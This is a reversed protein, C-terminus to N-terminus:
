SFSDGAFGPRYVRSRGTQPRRHALWLLVWLSVLASAGPTPEPVRFPEIGGPQLVMTKVFIQLDVISVYEDMGDAELDGVFNNGPAGYQDAVGEIRSSSFGDGDFSKLFITNASPSAIDLLGDGTFDGALLYQSPGWEEVVSYFQLPALGVQPGAWMKTFISDGLASVIEGAGQGDLNAVWNNGPHGWLDQVSYFHEVFNDSAADYWKVWALDDRASVIEDRGDGDLDGVWNAYYIASALTYSGTEFHGSRGTGVYDKVYVDLGIATLIEDRGDADIDGLWIFGLQGMPGALPYSLPTFGRPQRDFWKVRVDVGGPGISVIEDAGDGDLDGAFNAGVPAWLNPPVAYAESQVSLLPQEGKFFWSAPDTFSPGNRDLKDQPVLGAFDGADFALSMGASMNNGLNSCGVLGPCLNKPLGRQFINSPWHAGYRGQFSLWSQGNAPTGDAELRLEVLGAGYDWPRWTPGAADTIDAFDLWDVGYYIGCTVPGGAALFGAAVIEATGASALVFAGVTPYSAHSNLASFVRVHTGDSFQLRPDGVHYWTGTGHAAFNVAIVSSFDSTVRVTVREFDGEHTGFPQWFGYRTVVHCPDLLDWETLGILFTQPGNFPYFFIYQLDYFEHDPGPLVHVYMPAVVEAGTPGVVTPEGVYSDRPLSNPSGYRVRLFFEQTDAEGYSGLLDSYVPDAVVTGTLRHVLQVDQLYREVSSPLYPDFSHLKV